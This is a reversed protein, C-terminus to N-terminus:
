GGMKLDALALVHNYHKNIRRAYGDEGGCYELVYRSIFAAEPQEADVVMDFLHEEEKEICAVIHLRDFQIYYRTLEGALINVAREVSELNSKGVYELYTSHLEADGGEPKEFWTLSILLGIGSM